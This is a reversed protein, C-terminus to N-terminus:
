EALEYKVGWGNVRILGDTVDSSAFGYEPYLKDTDWDDYRIEILRGTFEIDVCCDHAKVNYWNYLVMEIDDEM